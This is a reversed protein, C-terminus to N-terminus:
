AEFKLLKERETSNKKELNSFLSIKFNSTSPRSNSIKKLDSSCNIWVTFPWFLKQYCFAKKVQVQLNRMDSLNSCHLDLNSFINPNLFMCSFNSFLTEWKEYTIAHSWKRGETQVSYHWNPQLIKVKLVYFNAKAWLWASNLGCGEAEWITKASVIRKKIQFNYFIWITTAFRFKKGLPVDM